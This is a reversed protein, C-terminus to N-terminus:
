RWWGGYWNDWWGRRYDENDYRRGRDRWSYRNDDLDRRSERLERREREIAERDRALEERNAGHRRDQRFERQADRLDRLDERYERYEHRDNRDWRDAMAPTALLGLGAFIMAGSVWRKKSKMLFEERQTSRRMTPWFTETVRLSSTLYHAFPSGESIQISKGRNQRFYDELL